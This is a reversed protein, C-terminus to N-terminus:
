STKSEPRLRRLEFLVQYERAPCARMTLGPEAYKPYPADLTMPWFPWSISDWAWICMGEPAVGHDITWSDGIRYGLPCSKKPMHIVTIKIPHPLASIASKKPHTLKAAFRHTGTINTHQEEQAM